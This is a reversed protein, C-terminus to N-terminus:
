HSVEWQQLRETHQPFYAISDVSKNHRSVLKLDYHTSILNESAKDRNRVEEGSQAEAVQEWIRGLGLLWSVKRGPRHCSWVVYHQRQFPFPNGHQRQPAKRWIKNHSQYSIPSGTIAKQGPPLLGRFNGQFAKFWYIAIVTARESPFPSTMIIKFLYFCKFIILAWATKCQWRKM